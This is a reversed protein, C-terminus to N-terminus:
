IYSHPNLEDATSKYVTSDVFGFIAFEKHDPRASPKAFAPFDDFFSNLKSLNPRSGPFFLLPYDLRSSTRNLAFYIARLCYSQRTVHSSFVSEYCGKM